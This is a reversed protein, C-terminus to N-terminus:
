GTTNSGVNEGIKEFKQFIDQFDVFHYNKRCLRYCKAYKGGNKAFKGGNQSNEEM